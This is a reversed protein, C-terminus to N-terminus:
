DHDHHLIVDHDHNSKSANKLRIIIMQGYKLDIESVRWTKRRINREEKVSRDNPVADAEPAEDPLGDGIGCYKQVLGIAVTMTM